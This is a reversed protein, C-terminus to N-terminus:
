YNVSAISFFVAGGSARLLERQVALDSRSALAVVTGYPANASKVIVALQRGSWTWTAEYARLTTATDRGSAADVLHVVEDSPEIGPSQRARVYLLESPAAPSWRPDRLLVRDCPLGADVLTQMPAAADAVTAIRANGQTCENDVVVIQPSGGQRWHAVAPTGRGVRDLTRLVRGTAVDVLALGDASPLLLSRGDPSWEVSQTPEVTVALDRPAGGTPAVVGVHMPPPVVEGVPGPHVFAILSGDKSWAPFTGALGLTRARGSELEVIVLEGDVSLVLQKGDPSFQRRLYPASDLAAEPAGGTSTSYAYALRAAGADLPVGWIEVTARPASPDSIRKGVFIWNGSLTGTGASSGPSATPAISPTASSAASPTPIASATTVPALSTGPKSSAGVGPAIAGERAIGLATVVVLAVAAAAALFALVSGGSRRRAAFPPLSRMPERASLLRDNRALEEAYARCEACQALHARLAAREAAGLGDPERHREIDARPHDSV